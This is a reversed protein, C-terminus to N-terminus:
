KRNLNLKKKQFILKTDIMIDYFYVIGQLMSFPRMSSFPRGVLEQRGTYRDRTLPSRDDRRHLSLTTLWKATTPKRFGSNGCGILVRGFEERHQTPVSEM